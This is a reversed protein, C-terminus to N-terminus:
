MSSFPIFTKYLGFYIAEANVKKAVEVIQDFYLDNRALFLTQKGLAPRHEVEVGSVIGGSDSRGTKYDRDM